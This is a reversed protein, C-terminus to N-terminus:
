EYMDNERDRYDLEFGERFLDVDDEAMEDLDDLDDQIQVDEEIDDDDDNGHAINFEAPPSSPMPSSGLGVSSAGDDGGRARKRSSRAPSRNASAPHDRLP